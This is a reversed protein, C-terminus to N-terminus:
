FKNKIIKKLELSLTESESILTQLHKIQNALNIEIRQERLCLVASGRKLQNDIQIDLNKKIIESLSKSEAESIELRFIKNQNKIIEKIQNEIFSNKKNSKQLFVKEMLLNIIKIIENKSNEIINNQLQELALPILFNEKDNVSFISNTYIIKQNSQLKIYDKLIKLLRYNPPTLEEPSYNKFVKPHSMDM